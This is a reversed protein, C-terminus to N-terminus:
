VNGNIDCYCADSQFKQWEALYDKLEELYAYIHKRGRIVRGNDHVMPAKKDRSDLYVLHFAVATEEFESLIDTCDDSGQALYLTLM